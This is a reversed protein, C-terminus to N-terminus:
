QTFHFCKFWEKGHVMQSLDLEICCGRPIVINTGMSYFPSRLTPPIWLLLQGKPGKIWGDDHLKVVAGLVANQQMFGDVLPNSNLLAHSPDYSFCIPYGKVGDAPPFPHLISSPHSAVMTFMENEWVRVTNDWSGSAIRM